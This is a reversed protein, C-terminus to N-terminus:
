LPTFRTASVLEAGGIQATDFDASPPRVLSVDENEVEDFPLRLEDRLRYFGRSEREFTAPTNLQVYSRVSSQSTEGILATVSEAIERSSMPDTQLSMTAIIADRVEGPQKRNATPQMLEDQRGSTM